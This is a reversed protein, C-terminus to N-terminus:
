VLRAPGGTAPKLNVLRKVFRTPSTASAALFATEDLGLVTVNTHQWQSDLIKQGYECVARM